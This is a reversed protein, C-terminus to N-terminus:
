RRERIVMAQHEAIASCQAEFAQEAETPQYPERSKMWRSLIGDTATRHAPVYTFNRDLLGFNENM